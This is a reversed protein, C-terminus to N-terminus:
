EKIVELDQGILAVSNVWGLGVFTMDPDKATVKYWKSKNYEVKIVRIFGESKIYKMKKIAEMPSTPKLEPMLPTKKSIKYIKGVKLNLYDITEYPSKGILANKLPFKFKATKRILRIEEITVARGSLKSNFKGFIPNSQNVPIVMYIEIYDSIKSVDFGLGLGLKAMKKQKQRLDNKWKENSISIKKSKRWKGVKSKEDFYDVSYEDSNGKEFYSRSVGVMLTTNDPLDTDLSFILSDGKVEYNINFKNCIVQAYNVNILALVIIFSTFFLFNNTNNRM